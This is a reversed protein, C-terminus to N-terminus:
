MAVEFSAFSPTQKGSEIKSVTSAAYGLLEAVEEQTLGREKRLRKFAEGFHYYNM